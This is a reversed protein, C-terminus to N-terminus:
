SLWLRGPDWPWSTGLAVDVVFMGEPPGAVRTAVVPRGGWRMRQMRPRRWAVILDVSVSGEM